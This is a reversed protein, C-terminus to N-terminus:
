GGCWVGGDHRWVLDCASSTSGEVYEECTMSRIRSVCERAEVGDYDCEKPLDDDRDDITDGVEDVCDEYDKYESEFYGRACSRLNKCEAEARANVYDKHDLQGCAAASLALLLTSQKLCNM